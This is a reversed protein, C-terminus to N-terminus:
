NTNQEYLLSYISEAIEEVSKSGLNFVPINLDEAMRISQGTGGVTSGQPTWCVVFLAPSNLNPGLMQYANRAMLKRAGQSLRGWAPHYRSALQMAEMTCNYYNSPHNNFGKWPLFIQKPGNVDDCGNEFATDAGGAAGSRLITGSTAINRALNQIDILVALPTKRAGIGAYSMQM